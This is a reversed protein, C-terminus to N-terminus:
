RTLMMRVIRVTSGIGIGEATRLTPDLVHIRTVVLGADGPGIEAIVSPTLQSTYLKIELAPSLHGELKLDVLRVRDRFTNYISDATAGIAVPGVRGREVVFSQQLSSAPQPAVILALLLYLTPRRALDIVAIAGAHSTIM